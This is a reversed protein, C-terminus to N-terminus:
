WTPTQGLFAQVGKPLPTFTSGANVVGLLTQPNRETAQPGNGAAILATGAANTWLVWESAFSHVQRQGLVLVPKGTQVSIETITIDSTPLTPHDARPAINRRFYQDREQILKLCNATKRYHIYHVGTFHGNQKTFGDISAGCQRHLDLYAASRLTLLSSGQSVLTGTASIIKTGDGTMLLPGYLPLPSKEAQGSIDASPIPVRRSDALLSGHPAATDLLRVQVKSGGAGLHEQFLLARNDGAWSLSQANPKNM